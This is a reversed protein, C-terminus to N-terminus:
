GAPPAPSEPPAPPVPSTPGEQGWRDSAPRGSRSRPRPLVNMLVIVAGMAIAMIPLADRLVTSGHDSDIGFINEFVLGFGVFLGLGVAATRLGSDLLDTRRHLLGYLFLTAGVSGPAILAWAYAWSAWAGTADQFALLLGVATIIGGPVAMGLGAENPVALGVVLLCLGPAIVFIPWGHKGLDFNVQQSVLFAAGLAILLAGFVLRGAQSERAPGDGREHWGGDM